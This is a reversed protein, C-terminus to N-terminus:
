YSEIDFVGRYWGAENRGTPRYEGKQALRLVANGMATEVSPCGLKFVVVETVAGSRDFQVLFPIEVKVRKRTAGPITCEKSQVAAEITDVVYTLGESNNRAELLPINSWDGTATSVTPATSASALLVLGILSM